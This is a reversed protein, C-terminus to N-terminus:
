GGRRRWTGMEAVERRVNAILTEPGVRWRAPREPPVTPLWHEVIGSVTDGIVRGVLANFGIVMSVEVVRM